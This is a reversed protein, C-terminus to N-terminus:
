SMPLQKRRTVSASLGQGGRRRRRRPWRCWQRGHQISCGVNRSIRNAWQGYGGIGYSSCYGGSLLYLDVFTDYYANAPYDSWDEKAQSLFSRGRDLHLPPDNRVVAVVTHNLVRQGYKVAYRSAAASDSAFFIPVGPQLSGACRVANEVDKKNRSADKRYQARVHASAYRDPVLGHEQLASSIRAAVPPSPQFFVRWVEGYVQEFTPEATSLRNSDYEDCVSAEFGCGAPGYFRSEVLTSDAKAWQANSTQSIIGRDNMEIAKRGKLKGTFDDLVELPITWNVGGVPPVLFEELPAPRSWTIFLLRRTQNALMVMYPLQGLRDSAGGCKSDDSLCRMVLYRHAGWDKRLALRERESKHWNFYEKMWPPIRPNGDWLNREIRSKPPLDHTTTATVASVSNTGVALLSRYMGDNSTEKQFYTIDIGYLPTSFQSITVRAASIGLVLIVGRFPRRNLSWM